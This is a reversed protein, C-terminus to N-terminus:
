FVMCGASNCRYPGGSGLDRHLNKRTGCCRCTPAKKDYVILEIKERVVAIGKEQLAGVAYNMRRQMQLLDHDHTTLYAFVEKGLVPDGDIQSYKWHMEKALAEAVPGHEREVTIHCEYNM